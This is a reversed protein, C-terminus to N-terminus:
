FNYGMRVKLASTPPVSRTALFDYLVMINGKLKASIKYKKSIGLLASSKWGKWDKLQDVHSFASLYNEEFGGNVFFTGKLKWDVFSRLGIGQHSFAINNWGNGMGLKYSIGLGATGNKHFKYAAQGAIDSTTPYYQTSKQFQVNGGFEMRQLFSKTKMPNPKFDPMDGANDLDPFKSKLESFQSRAQEMQQSVAQQASPSSGIRQQVLQEVQARTQLGELSQATNASSSLNFLSALQSHKQLFDNYAPVKKLLEVAKAEAKKKDKLLSKYEKIQQGYYYAEKNMKQLDKTFGTYQSLQEKLQQRRERIYAKVEEAQQLKGQLDQVSQTASSLKDKSSGLMDKSGDLFKLSNQLTDLDANGGLPLNGPVKNKLGSKLSGLKDISRTFINKAAVSDVKWLKAQMKKEQKAFRNLAKETRKNVQEEVHHSKHEVQSLYKKPLKKVQQVTSDTDNAFVSIVHGIVFLVSLILYRM